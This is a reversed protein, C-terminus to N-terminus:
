KLEDEVDEPLKLLEPDKTKSYVPQIRKLAQPLQLQMEHHYDPNGRELNELLRVLEEKALLVEAKQFVAINVVGPDNIM